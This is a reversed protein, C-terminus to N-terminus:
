SEAAWAARAIPQSLLNTWGELWAFCHVSHLSGAIMKRRRGGSGVEAVAMRACSGWQYRRVFVAKRANTESLGAMTRWSVGQGFVGNFGGAVGASSGDVDFIEVPEDKLREVIILCHFPEDAKAFALHSWIGDVSIGILEANHKQFEPLVEQYLAMQDSCVPSWDEPYFALIM